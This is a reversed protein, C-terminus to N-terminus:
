RGSRLSRRTAADLRAVVLDYSLDILELLHGDPVTGDLRVTIWHRKHLHYGPRVAPYSSRLAVALEPDCKLSLEAPRAREAILAFMRKGVKIVLTDPGFPRDPFAGRKRLCARRVAAVDTLMAAPM